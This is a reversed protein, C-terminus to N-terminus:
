QTADFLGKKTASRDPFATGLFDSLGFFWGTDKSSHKNAQGMVFAKRNTGM